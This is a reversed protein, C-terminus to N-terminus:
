GFRGIGDIGDSLTQQKGEFAIRWEDFEEFEFITDYKQSTMAWGFDNRFWNRRLGKRVMDSVGYNGKPDAQTGWNRWMDDLLLIDVHSWWYASLMPVGRPDVKVANTRILALLEDFIGCRTLVFGLLKIDETYLQNQLSTENKGPGQELRAIVPDTVLFRLKELSLDGVKRPNKTGVWKSEAESLQGHYVEWRRVSHSAGTLLIFLFQVSSSVQRLVM